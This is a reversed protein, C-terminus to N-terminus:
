FTAGPGCEGKFAGPAYTGKWEVEGAKGALAVSEGTTQAILEARAIKDEALFQRVLVRYNGGGQAVVRVELKTEGKADKATGEYLGQVDIEAPAAAWVRSMFVLWIVAAWIGRRM